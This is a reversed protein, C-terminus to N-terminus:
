VVFIFQHLLSTAVRNCFRGLSPGNCLDIHISHFVLGILWGVLVVLRGILRGSLGILKSGLCILKGVIGILKGFSSNHCM